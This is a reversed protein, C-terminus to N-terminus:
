RRIRRKISRDSDNVGMKRINYNTILLARNAPSLDKQIGITKKM